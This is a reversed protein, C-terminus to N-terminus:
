AAVEIVATPQAEAQATLAADIADRLAILAAPSVSVQMEAAGSQICLSLTNDDHWRILRATLHRGAIPGLALWNGSTPGPYHTRSEAM